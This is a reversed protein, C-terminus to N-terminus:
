IRGERHDSKIAQEAREQAIGYGGGGPTRISVTEGDFLTVTGKAPLPIEESDRILVNEGTRGPAGGNLGYPHSRRRDTLLSVRATHGVITIDRRIGMGGRYRGNGGSGDILEYREVRLPYASELAEVPTNLTNTMHSHVGNVGDKNPRAGFGGGITEYLTYAKGSRPNIGGITVNNMTGQCAAIVREPCLKSFAGLIVDVIRQSTELNGGVVPSPPDSNVVSGQPAIIEIPRYCGANPPIDPDTIARLTFYTASATVAYVANVPGAVAPSSGTFDVSIKEGSVTVSARIRIPEDTIGDGDLYDEYAATGDPLEKIQARMRRESYDMVAAMGRTLLDSGFRHVLAQMRAIGTECAAHQASLDGMREEPTRVNLLILDALDQDLKGENWLRVPPIRLGEQYIETTDGAVSGPEKGGVDAHHARSAVFAFLEDRVFVPAIFTIDPLHAGGYYPDNLIIVDGPHFTQAKSIAAAVSFPMAGLHVPISEAQAVMRGEPDFVACSCDRREKINPSFASRILNANMEESVAALAHRLVELTIPDFATSNMTM